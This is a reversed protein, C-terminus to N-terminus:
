SYYNYDNLLYTVETSNSYKGCAISICPSNAYITHMDPLEVVQLGVILVGIPGDTTDPMLLAGHKMDSANPSRDLFQSQSQSQSQSRISQSQSYSGVSRQNIPTRLLHQPTNNNYNTVFTNRQIPPLSPQFDILQSREQEYERQRNIAAQQQLFQFQSGSQLSGTGDAISMAAGPQFVATSSGQAGRSPPLVRSVPSILPSEVRNNNQEDTKWHRAVADAETDVYGDALPSFFGRIAVRGTTVGARKISVVIERLAVQQRQSSASHEGNMSAPSLISLSASIPLRTLELVSIAVSGIEVDRSSVTLNVLSDKGVPFQWLLNSFV